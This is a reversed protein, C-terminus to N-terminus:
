NSEYEDKLGANSGNQNIIDQRTGLPVKIKTNLDSINEIAIVYTMVKTLSAIGVSEDNTNKHFLVEDTNLNFIIAENSYIDSNDLASINQINIYFLSIILLFITLTKKM